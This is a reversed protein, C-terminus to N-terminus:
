HASDVAQSIAEIDDDAFQLLVTFGRDVDYGFQNSHYREMKRKFPPYRNMLKQVTPDQEIVFVTAESPDGQRLTWWAYADVYTDYAALVADALGRIEPGRKNQDLFQDVSM